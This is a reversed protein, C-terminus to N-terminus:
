QLEKKMLRFVEKSDHFGHGGKILLIKLNPQKAIGKLGPKEEKGYIALVKTSKIKSTEDVVNYPEKKKDIGIMDRFRIRFQSTKAPTLLVVLKMEQRMEPPLRNYLFPIIEAGFSFGVLMLTRKNWQESYQKIVPILDEAVKEPTKGPMFYKISNLGIYSFGSNQYEKLMKLDFRVMGGDGTIHFILPTNNQGNYQIKLSLEKGKGFSNFESIFFCFLLLIFPKLM